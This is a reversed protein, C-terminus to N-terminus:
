RWFMFKVGWCDEGERMRALTVMVIWRGVKELDWVEREWILIGVMIREMRELSRIRLM